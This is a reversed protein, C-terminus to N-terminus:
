ASQAPNVFRTDIGARKLQGELGGKDVARAYAEEPAVLKKAVLEMLADNLSVMGDKKGVQLISPLQFTKGERILNSVAPTVILVELAAIRGGGIKKCLTQAIVGRLSESLMIRIQSQRDTPFQDILRDVTSAATTTHLTGFVLHGTEATEIAIAVTELDRLEGVLLIDPDERLAARLADKFSDTHTRVERQNLLCRKNEHVFEIPDEITIIHDARNRNVYDVMACLTTSKGSGTPGTVLVLGKTLRCLQLIHSSLGLDEATLIKSPIVRFVAGCGKRDMFVNARFRALGPVDYAFDTDHRRAFEEANKAPMIPELLAAMREADLSEVGAELPQIEGDKRVLPPMGGCLHLDSARIQCMLRFLRDIPVRELTQGTQVVTQAPQVQPVAPTDPSPEVSPVVQVVEISGVVPTSLVSGASAPSSLASKASTSVSSPGAHASDMAVLLQEGDRRITVRFAGVGLTTYEFEVSGEQPLRRRAEDPVIPGVAGLIEQRTLARATVDRAVGAADTMRVPAGSELRLGSGGHATVRKLLTDIFDTTM